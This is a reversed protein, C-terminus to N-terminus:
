ADPRGGIEVVLRAAATLPDPAADRWVMVEGRRAAAVHYLGDADRHISWRWGDAAPCASDFLRAAPEILELPESREWVEWSRSDDIVIEVVSHTLFSPHTEHILWGPRGQVAARIADIDPGSM